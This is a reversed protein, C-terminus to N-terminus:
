WFKLKGFCESAIWTAEDSVDSTVTCTHSRVTTESKLSGTAGWLGWGLVHLVRSCWMLPTNLGIATQM